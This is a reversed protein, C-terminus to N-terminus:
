GEKVQLNALGDLRLTGGHSQKRIARYINIHHSRKLHVFLEATARKAWESWIVGKENRLAVEVRSWGCRLCSIEVHCPSIV